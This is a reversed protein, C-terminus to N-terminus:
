PLAEKAKFSIAYTKNRDVKWKFTNEQLRFTGFANSSIIPRNDVITERLNPWVDLTVDGSADSSADTLVKYLRFPTLYVSQFHIILIQPTYSVYDGAVAFSAVNPAAGRIFIQNSGAVNNGVAASTNASLGSASPTWLGQPTARLYDGMWFTGWKGKLSGLFAIWKEAQATLMPPLNAEIEWRQGPWQQLQQSLDFPSEGEGVVNLQSMTFDQPGIGAITPPALPYSIPM